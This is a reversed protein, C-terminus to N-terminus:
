RRRTRLRLSLVTISAACFLLLTVLGATPGAVDDGTAVLAVPTKRDNVKLSFEKAADPAFGNAVQVTFTATGTAHPTGSIIGDASLSLGEPLTSGPKLTWTFTEPYGAASLKQRYPLGTTADPLSSTTIVPHGSVALHFAQTTSGHENTAKVSFTYFGSDHPTGSLKGDPALSLGDPLADTEASWSASNDDSAFSFRYPKGTEGAPLTDSVTIVPPGVVTISFDATDAGYDNAAEVAFSSAGKTSPTGSIIGDASLSLGAPLEGSAVSWAVPETGSAALAQSYLEGTMAFPLDTTTIHPPRYEKWVAYLTNGGREFDVAEGPQYSTGTGDSSTNWEKFKYQTSEYPARTFACEPAPATSDGPVGETSAMTGSGGNPDYTILGCTTASLPKESGTKYAPGSYRVKIKDYTTYPVLGSFSPKTQWTKGDLSYSVFVDAPRETTITIGIWTASVPTVAMPEPPADREAHQRVYFSDPWGASKYDDPLKSPLKGDDYDLSRDLRVWTDRYGDRTDAPVQALINENCNQELHVSLLASGTFMDDAQMNTDGFNDPLTIDNLEACGSFMNKANVISRGFGSTATFSGLAKCDSFMGQANTIGQDFNPPLRISTAAVMGAFLSRMDGQATVGAEVTINTALNACVLWGRQTSSDYPDLKGNGGDTLKITLM